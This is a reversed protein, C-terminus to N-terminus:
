RKGSNFVACMFVAYAAYAIFGCIFLPDLIHVFREGFILREVTGEFINFLVYFLMITVTTYVPNGSCARALTMTAKQLTNM